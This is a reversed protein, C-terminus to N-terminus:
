EPKFTRNVTAGPVEEPMLGMVGEGDGLADQIKRINDLSALTLKVEQGVYKSLLDELDITTAKGQADVTHLQLTETLPDREIVGDLIHGLDTLNIDAM